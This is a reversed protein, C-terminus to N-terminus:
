KIHKIPIKRLLSCINFVRLEQMEEENMWQSPQIVDLNLMTIRLELEKRGTTQLHNKITKQSWIKSLDLIVTVEKQALQLYSTKEGQFNIFSYSKRKRLLKVLINRSRKKKQKDNWVLIWYLCNLQLSARVKLFIKRNNTTTSRRRWTDRERKQLGITKYM